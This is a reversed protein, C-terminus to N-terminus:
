IPSHIILLQPFSSSKVNFHQRDIQNQLELSMDNTKFQHGIHDCQNIDSGIEDYFDALISFGDLEHYHICTKWFGTKPKLAQIKKM